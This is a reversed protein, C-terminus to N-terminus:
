ALADAFRADARTQSDCAWAFRGFEENGALIEREPYDKGFKTAPPSVRVKHVEFYQAGASAYLAVNRERKQLTMTHGAQRYSSPITQM